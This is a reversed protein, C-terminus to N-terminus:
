TQAEQKDSHSSVQPSGPNNELGEVKARAIPTGVIQYTLSRSGAYGSGEVATMTVTARGVAQDNSYSLTYHEGEVLPQKKYTVALSAPRIGGEERMQDNSYTQNPIRAVSVRSLLVDAYRYLTFTFASPLARGTM